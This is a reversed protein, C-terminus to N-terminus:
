PSTGGRVSAGNAATISCSYQAFGTLGTVVVSTATGAVSATRSPLNMATCTATYTDIPLGGDNIPPTFNLTASGPGATGGTVFPAGPVTPLPIAATVKRLPNTPPDVLQDLDNNGWCVVGGNGAACSHEVGATVSFMASNAAIAVVPVLSQATSRNGLQGVHNRGWCKVGNSVVACSHELGASLYTAFSNAPLAVVPVAGSATSNDGLQGNDNCGWAAVTGDSCLAM